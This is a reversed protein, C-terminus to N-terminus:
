GAVHNNDGFTLGQAINAGANFHAPVSEGGRQPDHSARVRVQMDEFIAPLRQVGVFPMTQHFRRRFNLCVREQFRSTVLDADAATPGPRGGVVGLITAFAERWRLEFPKSSRM